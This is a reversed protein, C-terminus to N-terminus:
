YKISFGKINKAPKPKSRLFQYIKPTKAIHYMNYQSDKSHNVTSYRTSFVVKERCRASQIYFFFCKWILAGLVTVNNLLM